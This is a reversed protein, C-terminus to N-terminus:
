VKILKRYLAFLCGFIIIVQTSIAFSQIYSVSTNNDVLHPLISSVCKWEIYVNATWIVFDPRFICHLSTFSQLRWLETSKDHICYNLSEQMKMKRSSGFTAQIFSVFNNLRAFITDRIINKRLKLNNLIEDQFFCFKNKMKLLQTILDKKHMRCTQGSDPRAFISINVYKRLILKVSPYISLCVSLYRWM